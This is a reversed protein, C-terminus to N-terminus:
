PFTFFKATLVIGIQPLPPNVRYHCFFIVLLPFGYFADFFRDSFATALPTGTRSIECVTSMMSLSGAFFGFRAAFLAFDEFFHFSVIM